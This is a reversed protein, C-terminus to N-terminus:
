MQDANQAAQLTHLVSLARAVIKWEPVYIVNQGKM